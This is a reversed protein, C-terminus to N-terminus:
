QPGLKRCPKSKATATTGAFASATCRQWQVRRYLRRLFGHSSKGPSRSRSNGRADGPRVTPCIRRRRRGRARCPTRQTRTHSGGHSIRIDRQPCSRRSPPSRRGTLTTRPINGRIPRRPQSCSHPRSCRITRQHNDEGAAPITASPGRRPCLSRLPAQILYTKYKSYIMDSARSTIAVTAARSLGSPESDELRVGSPSIGQKM